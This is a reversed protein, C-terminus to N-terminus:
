SKAGLTATGATLALKTARVNVKGKAVRALKAVGGANTKATHGGASVKADQVPHAKGAFTTTVTITAGAGKRRARVHLRANAAPLFTLLESHGSGYTPDAVLPSLLYHLLGGRMDIFDLGESEAKVGPLELEVQPPTAGTLDVSQVQLTDDIDGALFLRGGHFVAGTVGSPPVAGALRQVPHIPPSDKSTAANAATIDATRYALLDKGSSTWVFQGDPSTEAWMAKPIDAQDLRVWYRWALTIPDLVGFGGIGCTNAQPLDPHYCEMPALLRGGEASQDFTPDGAHNFGIAAVDEPYISAVRAQEKLALDTRYAGQFVGIFYMNGGPGHTLGQFYEQPVADEQALKWRGPDTASAASPLVLAALCAAFLARHSM